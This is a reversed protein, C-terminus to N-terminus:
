HSYTAIDTLIIFLFYDFMYIIFSVRKISNQFTMLDLTCTHVFCVITHYHTLNYVNIVILRNRLGYCYLGLSFTFDDWIHTGDM